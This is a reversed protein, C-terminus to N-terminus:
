ASFKDNFYKIGPAVCAKGDDAWQQKRTPNGGSIVQAVALVNPFHQVHICAFLSSVVEYCNRASPSDGELVKM